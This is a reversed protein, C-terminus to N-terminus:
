RPRWGGDQFSYKFIIDIVAFGASTESSIKDAQQKFSYYVASFSDKASSTFLFLFSLNYHTIFSFLHVTNYFSVFHTLISELLQVIYLSCASYFMKEQSLRSNRSPNASPGFLLFFIGLCKAEPSIQWVWAPWTRTLPLSNQPQLRFHRIKETINALNM